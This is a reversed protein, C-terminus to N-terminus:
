PLITRDKTSGAADRGPDPIHTNNPTPRLPGGVHGQIPLDGPQAVPLDQGSQLTSYRM